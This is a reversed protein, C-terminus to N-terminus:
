AFVGARESFLDVLDDGDLLEVDHEDALRQAPATFSGTTVFIARDCDHHIRAMGVFSQIVPSGITRDPAYRKCQVITSHGDPDTAVIDAQLDGAKGTVHVDRFGISLLLDAVEYEFEMPTLALLGHLTALSQLRRRHRRSATAVRALGAALVIAGTAYLLTPGWTQSWLWMLGAAAGALLLTSRRLSRRSRRGRRAM